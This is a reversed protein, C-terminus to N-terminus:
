ISRIHVHANQFMILNRFIHIYIYKRCLAKCLTVQILDLFNHMYTMRPM